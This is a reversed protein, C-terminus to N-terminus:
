VLKLKRLEQNYGAASNDASTIWEGVTSKVSALAAPAEAEVKAVTHHICACADNALSRAEALAKAAFPALIALAATSLAGVAPFAKELFPLGYAAVAYAGLILFVYFRFGNAKADHEALTAEAQKRAAELATKEAALAHLQNDTSNLAADKEALAKEAAARRDDAQAIANQAYSTVWAAQAPTLAGLGGALAADAKPLLAKAVTAPLDQAPSQALAQGAAATYQQGIKAEAARADVQAATNAEQKAQNAEVAVAAASTHSPAIIKPVTFWAAVGALAIGVVVVLPALGRTPHPHLTKNMTLLPDM